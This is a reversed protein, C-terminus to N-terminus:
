AVSRRLAGGLALLLSGSLLIVTPEYAILSSLGTALENQVGAWAVGAASGSGLVLVFLAKMEWGTAL